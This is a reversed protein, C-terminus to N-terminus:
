FNEEFYKILLKAIEDSDVGMGEGDLKRLFITGDEWEEISINGLDITIAKM